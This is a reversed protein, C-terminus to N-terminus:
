LGDLAGLSEFSTDVGSSEFSTEVDLLSNSMSMFLLSSTSLTLTNGESEEEEEPGDEGVSDDVISISDIDENGCDDFLRRPQQHSRKQELVYSDSFHSYDLLERSIDISTKPSFLFEDNDDDELVGTDDNNSNYKDNKHINDDHHSSLNHLISLTSQENRHYSSTMITSADKISSNITTTSSFDHRTHCEEDANQSSSLSSAFSANIPSPANNSNDHDDKSKHNRTTTLISNETTTDEWLPQSKSKRVPPTQLAPPPHLTANRTSTGSNYNNNDGNVISSSKKPAHVRNINSKDVAPPSPSPSPSSQCLLLLSHHVLCDNDKATDGTSMTPAGTAKLHGCHCKNISNNDASDSGNDNPFSSYSRLVNDNVVGSTSAACGM